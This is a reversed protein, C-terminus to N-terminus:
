SYVKGRGGGIGCSGGDAWMRCVDEDRGGNFVVGAWCGEVDVKSKPKGEVGVSNWFCSIRKAKM